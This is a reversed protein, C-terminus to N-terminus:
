HVDDRLVVIDGDGDMNMILEDNCVMEWDGANDNINVRVRFRVVNHTCLM